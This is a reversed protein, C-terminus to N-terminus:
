LLHIKILLTCSRSYNDWYDTVSFLETLNDKGKSPGCLCFGNYFFNNPLFIPGEACRLVIYIRCQVCSLNQKSSTLCCNILWFAYLFVGTYRIKTCVICKKFLRWWTCENDFSQLAFYNLTKTLLFVLPDLCFLIIQHLRNNSVQSYRCFIDDTAKYHVSYRTEQM